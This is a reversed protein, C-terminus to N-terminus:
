VVSGEGGEETVEFVEMDVDGGVVVGTAIDGSGAVVELEVGSDKAGDWSGAEDEVGPVVADGVVRAADDYGGVGGEGCVEVVRFGDGGGM